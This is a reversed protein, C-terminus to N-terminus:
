NPLVTVRGKEQHGADHHSNRPDGALPHDDLLQAINDILTTRAGGSNKAKRFSVLLILQNSLSAVVLFLALGMLVNERRRTSNAGLRM